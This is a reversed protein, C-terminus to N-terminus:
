ISTAVVAAIVQLDRKDRNQSAAEELLKRVINQRLFSLLEIENTTIFRLQNAAM